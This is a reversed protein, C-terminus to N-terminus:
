FWTIDGAKPQEKQISERYAKERAEIESMAIDSRQIRKLYVKSTKPDFFIKRPFIGGTDNAMIPIKETELYNLAFNINNLGTKNQYFGGNELVNSGGFVKAQLNEKKCGKKLMDNILLEIAFDGYRGQEEQTISFNKSSFPLMFHNLGGLLKHPDFLAISICSGLVTSIFVDDSTSFYEGPLITVVSKQFHSDFHNNM